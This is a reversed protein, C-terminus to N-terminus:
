KLQELFAAPSVIRAGEYQKLALLDQDGTVLFDAAAEVAAVLFKDDKPDRCVRIVQLGPVRVDALSEIQTLLREVEDDTWPSLRRLVPRTLVQRYEAMLAPSVALRFRREALWARLIQAPPTEQSRLTGSVLVNTDLVATLM